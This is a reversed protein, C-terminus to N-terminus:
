EGEKKLLQRLLGILAVLGDIRLTGIHTVGGDPGMHGIRKLLGGVVPPRPAAPPPGAQERENECDSHKRTDADQKAPYETAYECGKLEIILLNVLM